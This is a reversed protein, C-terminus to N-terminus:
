ELNYASVITESITKLNAPLDPALPDLPMVHGGIQRAILEASKPDFQPQVFIVKVNDAKARRVIQTIQRPTPSKGGVEVSVQRLGYRDAFYGFAPHYVFLIRGRYPELEEQIQENVSKLEQRLAVGNQKLQRLSGEEQSILPALGGAMQEILNAMIVPDLWFHPDRAGVGHDHGARAHDGHDGHDHDHHDHHDHHGHDHGEHDKAAAPEADDATLERLPVLQSLDIVRADPNMERFRKVLNKEFELGVSYFLDAKGLSVAQRPTLEFTHPDDAPQLLAQVDLPEPSLREVLSVLPPITVFVTKESAEAEGDGPDAQAALRPLAPSLLLLFCAFALARPSLSRPTPQNHTKM